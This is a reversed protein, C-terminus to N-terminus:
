LNFVWTADEEFGLRILIEVMEPHEDLQQELRESFEPQKWRYIRDPELPRAGGMEADMEACRRLGAKHSSAACESFPVATPLGLWQALRHQVM